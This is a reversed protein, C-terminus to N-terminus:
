GQTDSASIESVVESLAKDVAERAIVDYDVDPADKGPKGQPGVPGVPGPTGPKIEAKVAAVAVEQAAMIGAVAEEQAARVPKVLVDILGQLVNAM